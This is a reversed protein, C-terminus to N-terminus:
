LCRFWTAQFVKSTCADLLGSSPDTFLPPTHHRVACWCRSSGALQGARSFEPVGDLSVSSLCPVTSGRSGRWAVRSLQQQDDVQPWIEKLWHNHEHTKRELVGGEM